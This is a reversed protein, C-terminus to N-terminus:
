GGSLVRFEQHSAGGRFVPQEQFFDRCHSIFWEAADYRTEASFSHDLDALVNEPRTAPM